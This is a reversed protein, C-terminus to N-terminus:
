CAPALLGVEIVLPGRPSTFPIAIPVARSPFAIATEQGTVVTPLGLSLQLAELRAKAAGAIMNTLEGVADVVQATLETQPEGLLQEAVALALTRPMSLAVTGTTKGTLGIVGTVEYQPAFGKPLFPQGRELPWGLMQTFVDSAAILFPNIQDATM